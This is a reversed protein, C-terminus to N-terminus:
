PDCPAARHHRRGVRPAAEAPLVDCYPAVHTIGGDDLQTTLLDDIWKRYFSQLNMLWCSTRAFLQVDGTWGLREDRQPCDTPVSHLNSRLGWRVFRDIANFRENSCRFRSSPRVDNHLVQSVLHEPTPTFDDPLGVLVANRFGRYTFRPTYHTPGDGCVVTDTVGATRYNEYFPQGLEDLEECHRIHVRTGAPLDIQLRCRGAHNQAFDFLWGDDVRRIDRATLQQTVRIPEVPYPSELVSM